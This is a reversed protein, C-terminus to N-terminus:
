LELGAAWASKTDTGAAAVRTSFKPAVLVVRARWRDIFPSVRGNVPAELLWGAGLEVPLWEAPLEREDLQKAPASPLSM